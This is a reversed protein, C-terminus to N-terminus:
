SSYVAPRYALTFGDPGTVKVGGTSCHVVTKPGNEDVTVVIGVHNTASDPAHYFVLDGPQAETWAVQRSSHGQGSTGAGVAENQGYANLFAWSVFGSCDLGMPRATGTTASGESTVTRMQGWRDDWGYALSKGGWFYDVKGELSLAAMLVARRDAPIGEPIQECVAAFEEETLSAFISEGVIDEVTGNQETLESLLEKQEKSFECLQAGEEASLRRISVAAGNTNSVGTVQTMSWYVSRLTEANKETDLAVGCPYDETQGSLVAYVALIDGFNEEDESLRTDGAEGLAAQVETVQEELSQELTFVEAAFPLNGEMSSDGYGEWGSPYEWDGEPVEEPVPMDLPEEEPDQPAPAEAATMEEPETTEEPQVTDGSQATEESETAEGSGATEESGSSGEPTSGGPNEPTQEPTEEAPEQPEEAPTQEPTEGSPEQPTEEAPVEAPPTEEAPATEAQNAQTEPKATGAEAMLVAAGEEYRPCGAAHVSPSCVCDALDESMGGLPCDEAHVGGTRQCTCRSLPCNSGHVTIECTCEGEADAPVLQAAGVGAAMVGSLLLATWKRAKKM